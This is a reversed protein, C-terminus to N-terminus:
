SRDSGAKGYSENTKAEENPVSEQKQEAAHNDDACTRESEGGHALRCLQRWPQDRGRPKEGGDGRADGHRAGLSGSCCEAGGTFRSRFNVGKLNAM